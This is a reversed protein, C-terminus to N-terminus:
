GSCLQDVSADPRFDPHDHLTVLLQDPSKPAEIHIDVHNQLVDCFLLGEGM